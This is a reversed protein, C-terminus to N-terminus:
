HTWQLTFAFNCVGTKQTRSSMDDLYRGAFKNDFARQEEDTEEELNATEEEESEADSVEDEVRKSRKNRVTMGEDDEGAASKRKAM